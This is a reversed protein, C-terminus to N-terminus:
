KIPVKWDEFLFAVKITDEISLRAQVQKTKQFMDRKFFEEIEMQYGFMKNDNWFDYSALLGNYSMFQVNQRVHNYTKEYLSLDKVGMHYFNQLSDTFQKESLKGLHGTYEACFRQFQANSHEFGFRLGRLKTQHVLFRTYDKRQLCGICEGLRYEAFERYTTFTEISRAEEKDRSFFRRGAGRVSRLWSLM